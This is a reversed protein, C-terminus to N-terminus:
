ATSRRAASTLAPAPSWSRASLFPRPIHRMLFANTTRPVTAVALRLHAADLAVTAFHDLWARDDDALASRLDMRALVDAEPTIVGDIGQNIALDLELWHIPAALTDADIRDNDYRGHNLGGGCRVSPAHLTCARGPAFQPPFCVRSVLFEDWTDPLWPSM